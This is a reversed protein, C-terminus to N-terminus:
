CLVTWGSDPRARSCVQSHLSNNTCQSTRPRKSVASIPPSLIQTILAEQLRDFVHPLKLIHKKTNESGALSAVQGNRYKYVPTQLAKSGRCSQWNWSICFHYM